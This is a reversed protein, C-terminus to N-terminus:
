FQECLEIDFQPWKMGVKRTEAVAKGNIHLKAYAKIGNCSNRRSHESYPLSGGDTRKTSVPVHTLNFSYESLGNIETQAVKLDVNTSSFKKNQRVEQIKTWTEYL